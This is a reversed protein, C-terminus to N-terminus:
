GLETHDKEIIEYFKPSSLSHEKEIVGALQHQISHMVKLKLIRERDKDSITTKFLVPGWYYYSYKNM